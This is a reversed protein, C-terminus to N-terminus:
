VNETSEQAWGANKQRSKLRRFTENQIAILRHNQFGCVSRIHHTLCNMKQWM